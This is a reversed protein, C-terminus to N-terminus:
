KITEGSRINSTTFHKAKLLPYITCNEGIRTGPPIQTKEGIVSIGQMEHDRQHNKEVSGIHVNEDILVDSCVISRFIHADKQIVSDFMVISDRIVAGREVRVGPFLISHEVEGEIICGTSILSDSVKGDVGIQTPIRDRINRHALNTRLKWDRLPFNAPNDLIDMNTQWYEAITQTYGWYDNFKYGYVQYQDIMQPIIDKGFHFSQASQQNKKLVEILVKPNFLYITLSAWQSVAEAPKEYYAKLKGGQEDESEDEFKAVGFRTSQAVPVNKFVATLDAKKALHYQILHQYDMKYIHDGSLILVLDPNKDRIFDLNQYVADATGKYWDSNTEGIFPPLIVAGRNRGVFDWAGGIEIHNILSSSRYQSLIGVQNIGSHMLNSLPFDIVRYLGGFPVASKPRYLTLVGLQNVRGGALIMAVIKKM